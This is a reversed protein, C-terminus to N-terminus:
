QQQEEDIAGCSVLLSVFILMALASLGIIAGHLAALTDPSMLTGDNMFDDKNFFGLRIGGAQRSSYHLVRWPVKM